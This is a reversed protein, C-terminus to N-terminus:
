SDYGNLDNAEDYGDDYGDQYEESGYTALIDRIEEKLQLDDDHQRYKAFAELILKLSKDM